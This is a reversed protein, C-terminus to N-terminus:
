DGGNLVARLHCHVRLRGELATTRARMVSGLPMSQLDIGQVPYVDHPGSEIAEHRRLLNIGVCASIVVPVGLVRHVRSTASLLPKMRPRGLQPGGEGKSLHSPLLSM